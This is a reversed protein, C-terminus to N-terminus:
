ILRGGLYIFWNILMAVCVVVAFTMHTKKIKRNIRRPSIALAYIRYPIQMVTFAFLLPGIRHYEFAGALNGHATVAFSHTIGCLACKIGFMHNLLCHIPWKIGFLYVGAIDIHVLRSLTVIALAAILIITHFLPNNM